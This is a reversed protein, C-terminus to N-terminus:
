QSSKDPLVFYSECLLVGDERGRKVTEESVGSRVCARLGDETKLIRDYRFVWAGDKWVAIRGGENLFVDVDAYDGIRCLGFSSTEISPLSLDFPSITECSRVSRIEPYNVYGAVGGNLYRVDAIVRAFAGEEPLSDYLQIEYGYDTTYARGDYVYVTIKADQKESTYMVDSDAEHNPLLPKKCGAMLMCALLASLMAKVPLAKLPKLFHRLDKEAPSECSAFFV